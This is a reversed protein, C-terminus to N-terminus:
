WLSGMDGVTKAVTPKSSVHGYAVHNPVSPAETDGPVVMPTSDTKMSVTKM